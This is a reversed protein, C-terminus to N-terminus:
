GRSRRGRTERARKVVEVAVAAAGLVVAPLLSGLALWVLGAVLVISVVAMWWGISFRDLIRVAAIVGLVYVAVMSSTHILIFPELEGGTLM